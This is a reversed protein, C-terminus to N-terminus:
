VGAITLGGREKERNYFYGGGRSRRVVGRRTLGGRGKKGACIGKEGRKLTTYFPM